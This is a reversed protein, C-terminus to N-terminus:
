ILREIGERIRAALAPSEIVFSLDTNLNASRPDFNFSGIFIRTSDVTFTKAHLATGAGRAGSGTSGLATINRKVGDGHPPGRMEYLKVGLWAAEQAM